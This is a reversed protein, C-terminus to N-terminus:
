VAEQYEFSKMPSDKVFWLKDNTEDYVMHIFDESEPWYATTHELAEELTIGFTRYLKAMQLFFGRYHATLKGLNDENTSVIIPPKMLHAIEHLIIMHTEVDDTSLTINIQKPQDSKKYRDVVKREDSKWVWGLKAPKFEFVPRHKKSIMMYKCVYEAFQEAENETM